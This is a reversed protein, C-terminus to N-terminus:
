SIINKYRKLEDKMKKKSLLAEIAMELVEYDKVGLHDAVDAVLDPMDPRMKFNKQQTYATRGGRRRRKTSQRSPFGAEESIKSLEKKDVKPKSIKTETFDTIDVEDEDFSGLDLGAREAM